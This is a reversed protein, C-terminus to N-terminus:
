FLFYNSVTKFIIVGPRSQERYHFYSVILIRYVAEILIRWVAKYIKVVENILYQYKICKSGSVPLGCRAVPKTLVM